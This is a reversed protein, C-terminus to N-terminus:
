GVAFHGITGVRYRWPVKRETGASGLDKDTLVSRVAHSKLDICGVADRDNMM